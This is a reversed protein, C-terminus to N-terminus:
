LAGRLVPLCQTWHPRCNGTLGLAQRAQRAEESPDAQAGPAADAQQTSRCLSERRVEAGAAGAHGPSRFAKRFTNILYRRYTAPLRETQSGHIVILPPNRGGQHAYRLRVRRGRIMPPQHAVMGGGARPDARAHASGADRRGRGSRDLRVPRRRWSGHLASIFHIRAFDLFPLKLDIERRVQDRQDGSLGDWKNVAIVM